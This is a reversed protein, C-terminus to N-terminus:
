LPVGSTIVIKVQGATIGATSAITAIMQTVDSESEGVTLEYRASTSIDKASVYKDTDAVTGISITSATNFPTIVDIVIRDIYTDVPMNILNVPSATNYNITFDTILVEGDGFLPISVINTSTKDCEATWLADALDITTQNVAWVDGTVAETMYDGVKPNNISLYPIYAKKATANLLTNKREFATYDMFLVNVVYNIGGNEYAQGTAPDYVQTGTSHYTVAKSYKNGNIKALAKNQWQNPM